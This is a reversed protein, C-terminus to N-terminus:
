RTNEFTSMLRFLAILSLFAFSGVVAGKPETAAILGSMGVLIILLHIALLGKASLSRSLMFAGTAMLIIVGLVIELLNLKEKELTRATLPLPSSTSADYLEKGRQEAEDAPLITAKLIHLPPTPRHRADTPWLSIRELTRYSSTLHGFITYQGDLHPADTLLISFSSQGSNVDGDAHALSLMGARHNLNQAELPLKPITRWLEPSRPGETSWVDGVQFLYGPEIRPILVHDYLGQRILQTIQKVTQPAEKAYLGVLLPGAETELLLRDPGIDPLVTPRNDAHSPLTLCLLLGLTTLIISKM